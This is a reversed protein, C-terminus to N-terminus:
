CGPHHQPSRAVFEPAVNECYIKMFRKWDAEDGTHRAIYMDVGLREMGKIQKIVDEPTGAITFNKVMEDTVFSSKEVSENWNETHIFDTELYNKQTPTLQNRFREISIGALLFLRAANRWYWVVYPKAAKIAEERNESISFYNFCAITFKPPRDNNKRQSIGIGIRRIADTVANSSTGVNMIVGDAVRGALELMKPGTAPVFIPIKGCSWRMSSSTGKGYDVAEGSMLKKLDSITSELRETSAPNLGIRRVSGDGPGIGLVARGGSIENLTMIASATVTPHRTLPNTIAPGLKIRSTSLASAALCQYVDRDIMQVDTNWISYLGHEEAFVAAQAYKKAETYYGGFSLSLQLGSFEL